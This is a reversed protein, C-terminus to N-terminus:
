IRAGETGRGSPSVVLLSGDSRRDMVVSEPGAASLLAEAIRCRERERLGMMWYATVWCLLRAACAIAGLLVPAWM